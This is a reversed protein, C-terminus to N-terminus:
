IHVAPAGHAASEGVLKGHTLVAGETVETTGGTHKLFDTDDHSLPERTFTAAVTPKVSGNPAERLATLSALHCLFITPM